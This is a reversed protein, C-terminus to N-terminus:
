IRTWRNRNGSSDAALRVWDNKFECVQVAQGAPTYAVASAETTPASNISSSTLVYWTEPAEDSPADYRNLRLM